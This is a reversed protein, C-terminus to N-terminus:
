YLNDPFTYDCLNVPEPVRIYFIYDRINKEYYSAEM